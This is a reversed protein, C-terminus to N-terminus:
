WGVHEFDMKIDDEWSVRNRGLPRKGESRGVLVRYAGERKWMCAVHREWTMRRSKIVLVINPQATCIMLGRMVYNEGSGQQRTGRQGLVKRLVRNEFVRLRREVRLTFTWTECGYFDGPFTITRHIAM